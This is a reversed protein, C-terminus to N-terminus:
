PKHSLENRGSLESAQCSLHATSLSRGEMRGITLAWGGHRLEASSVHTWAGSVALTPSHTLLTLIAPLSSSLSILWSVVQLCTMDWVGCSKPCCRRSVCWKLQDNVNKKHKNEASVVRETRLELTVTGWSILFLTRKLDLLEVPCIEWPVLFLLRWYTRVWWTLQLRACYGLSPLHQTGALPPFVPSLHLTKSGFIHFGFHELDLASDRVHQLFYIQVIFNM